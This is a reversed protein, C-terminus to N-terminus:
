LLRSDLLINTCEVDVSPLLCFSPFILATRYLSKNYSDRSHYYTRSLDRSHRDSRTLDRCRSCWGPKRSLSSLKLRVLAVLLRKHDPFCRCSLRQYWYSNNYNLEVLLPYCYLASCHQKCDLNNMAARYYMLLKRYCQRLTKLCYRKCDLNNMAAPYHM